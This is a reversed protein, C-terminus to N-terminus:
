MMLAANVAELLQATTFPKPLTRVAGAGAADGLSAPVDAAPDGTIAIIRVASHRERLRAILESGHLDPLRLDTIVLEPAQEDALALADAASGAEVVHHGAAALRNRLLHRVRVEDEVLLIGVPATAVSEHQADRPKIARWARHLRDFLNSM